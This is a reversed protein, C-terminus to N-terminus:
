DGALEPISEVKGKSILEFQKWHRPQIDYVYRTKERVIGDTQHGDFLKFPYVVRDVQVGEPMNEIVSIFSSETHPEMKRSVYHLHKPLDEEGVHLGPKTTDYRRDDTGIVRTEDPVVKQIYDTRNKVQLIMVLRNKEGNNDGISDEKPTYDSIDANRQVSLLCITLQDGELFLEDSINATVKETNINKTILSFIGSSDSQSLGTSPQSHQDGQIQEYATNIKKFQREKGGQDPHHKKILSKYAAEIVADEAEPTVGLTKYPDDVQMYVESM